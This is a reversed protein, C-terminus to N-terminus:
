AAVTARVLWMCGPFRVEGDVMDARLGARIEDLVADWGEPGLVGRLQEAAVVGTSGSQIVALREEVGDSGGIGFRLDVDLPSITVDVWGAADLVEKVYSPDAFAAPGPQNPGSPPPPEPMRAVLVDIGQSFMRNEALSRWCAFAMTAGPRVAAALNAFAAGPDEFFMVGFESIVRDFGGPAFAGLDAVQVDAVEFRLGPFRRRAGEIMTASIDAGVPTGHHDAVMRSLAGTGCGVDLVVCGALPEAAAIVARSVPRFVSTFIDHNADWVPGARNTWLERMQENAV